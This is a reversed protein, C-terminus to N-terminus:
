WEPRRDGGRHAPIHGRGGSAHVSDHVAHAQSGSTRAVGGVTSLDPERGGLPRADDTALASAAAGRTGFGTATEALRRSARNLVADLEEEISRRMDRDRTLRAPLGDIESRITGIIEDIVALHEDVSILSGQKEAIRLEIERARADRASNKSAAQSIRDNQDKLWRIYGQVVSVTAYQGRAPKDIWGEAALRQLHRPTIMLLKAATQLTIRGPDGSHSTQTAM